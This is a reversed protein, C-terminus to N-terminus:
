NRSLTKLSTLIDNKQPWRHVDLHWIPSRLSSFPPFPTPICAVLNLISHIPSFILPILKPSHLICPILTPIQLIPAPICPILNFIPVPKVILTDSHLHSMCLTSLPLFWLFYKQKSNCKIYINKDFWTTEYKQHFIWKRFNWTKVSLITLDRNGFSYRKQM